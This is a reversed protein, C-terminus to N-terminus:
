GSEDKKESTLDIKPDTIAPICYRLYPQAKVKRPIVGDSAHIIDGKKNYVRTVGLMKEELALTGDAQILVQYLPTISHIDKNKYFVLSFREGTFDETSHVHKSGDFFTLRNKISISHDDIVLNGGFYSGFAIIASEGRNGTDKHPATKYNQNLTIGDYEFEAPLIKRAIDLITRYLEMRAFNQRSGGYKANRQYVLGFAQSRGLGSKVRYANMALPRKVLLAILDDFIIPDVFVDM